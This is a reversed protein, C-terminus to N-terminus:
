AVLTRLEEVPFPYHVWKAVYGEEGYENLVSVLGVAVATM